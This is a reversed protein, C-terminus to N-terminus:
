FNFCRMVMGSLISVAVQSFRFDRISRYGFISHDISRDISRGSSRLVPSRLVSISCSQPRSDQHQSNHFSCLYLHSFSALSYRDFRVAINWYIRTLSHLLERPNIFLITRNFYGHFFELGGLLFSENDRMVGKGLSSWVEIPINQTSCILQLM